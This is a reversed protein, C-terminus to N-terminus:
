EFAEFTFTLQLDADAGKTTFDTAAPGRIIVKFSGGLLRTFDDGQVDGSDFTASFEVPGAGVPEVIDASAAPYSNDSDNMQFQVDVTGQFIEELTAVGTSNGGLLLEVATLEISSPDAGDLAVRADSIFGGYPNGSETTIGKEDAVVDNVTDASKAKLNIGVPASYSVPDDGGCATLMALFVPLTFRLAKM